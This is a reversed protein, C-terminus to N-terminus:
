LSKSGMGGMERPLFTWALLVGQKGRSGGEDCGPSFSFHILHSYLGPSPLQHAPSRGRQAEAKIAGGQPALM